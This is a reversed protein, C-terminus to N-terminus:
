KIDKHGDYLQGKLILNSSFYPNYQKESGIVSSTGHGPYLICDDPLLALKQLSQKLKAESGGHLDTRGASGAFLTDGSFLYLQNYISDNILYCVSGATHGPTHIVEILQNFGSLSLKEGDSLMNFRYIPTFKANPYFVHLGNKIPDSLMNSDNSHIYVPIEYHNLLDSLGGIHDFHGHTLCIAVPKLGNKDILTEIRKADTPDIILTYQNDVTILYTNASFIGGPYCVIQM